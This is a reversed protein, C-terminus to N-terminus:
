HSSNLRTSKRDRSRGQNSRTTAAIVRSTILAPRTFTVGVRLAIPLRQDPHPFYERLHKAVEKPTTLAPLVDIFRLIQFKLAENALCWELVRAEWSLGEEAMSSFIERGIAETKEEVLEHDLSLM